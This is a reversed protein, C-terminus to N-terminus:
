RATMQADMVRPPDPVLRIGHTRCSPIAQAMSRRYWSFDDGVPCHFRRARVVEGDGALASGGGRVPYGADLEPPLGLEAFDLLWEATPRRATLLKFVSTAASGADPEMLAEALDHDLAAIEEPEIALEDLFPRITRGAELVVGDEIQM